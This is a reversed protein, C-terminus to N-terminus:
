TVNLSIISMCVNERCLSNFTEMSFLLGPATLSVDGLRDTKKKKLANQYYSKAKCTKKISIM